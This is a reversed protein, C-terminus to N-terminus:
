IDMARVTEADSEIQAKLADLSEFKIEGRLRKAFSVRIYEGYLEKSYDLIHSEITIKDAGFTPNNGVNIVSKLREGCAYTIGAYVGPKPIAMQTDYCVNATPFGLKRGNQFGKVVHGEVCFRRGLLKSAEEMNGNLIFERVATSSVIMDDVCVMDTVLVEVGAKKGLQRLTDVKGAAKYGFSYDYGCCVAKAHLRNVLFDFFEEPSKAMVEQTFRRMVVFDLEERGLLEMKATNPTILEIRKKGTINKTNQEFILVGSKLGHEKAYKIGNRIIQMHAVHLGDFDGLAVVTGEYPLPQEDMFIKM